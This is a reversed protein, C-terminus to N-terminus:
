FRAIQRSPLSQLFVSVNPRAASLQAIARPAMGQALAPLCAVRLAGARQLRIDQAVQAIREVGSYFPEIERFLAEAEPTPILKRGQRVFLTFGLRLELLGITRSVGPQTVNLLKAAGVVSGALMVSRFAELHKLNIQSKMYLM